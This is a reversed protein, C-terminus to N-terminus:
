RVGGVHLLDAPLYKRAMYENAVPATEYGCWRDGRLEFVDGYKDRIVSKSPLAALQELTTVKDTAALLAQLREQIQGYTHVGGAARAQDLDAIVQALKARLSVESGHHRADDRLADDVAGDKFQEMEDDSIREWSATTGDEDDETLIAACIVEDENCFYLHMADVAARAGREFDTESM